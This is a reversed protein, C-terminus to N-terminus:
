RDKIILEAALPDVISPEGSKVDYPREKKRKEIVLVSDYFHLCYASKTFDTMPVKKNHWAHLQDILKKSYEVFTGRRKYGGGFFRWYSTQLDECVYVGDEKVHDYLIELTLIQQKMTHGGDDLVIDLHPITDRVNKLFKKDDQSGIFIKVNESEFKKCEPNIDIGYITANGQFYDNWMQISGGHAIGIELINIKKGRFQRWHRDYIEFYHRWKHILRHQGNFFFEELENM